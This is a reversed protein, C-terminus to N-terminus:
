GLPEVCGADDYRPNNVRRNVSRAVLRDAPYPRLLNEAARAVASGAELCLDHDPWDLIGPMREHIPRLLENADTVVITFSEVM